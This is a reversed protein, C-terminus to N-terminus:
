NDNILKNLESFQMIAGAKLQNANKHETTEAGFKDNNKWIQNTNQGEWIDRQDETKGNL